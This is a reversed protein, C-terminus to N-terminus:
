AEPGLLAQKARELASGIRADIWGDPYEGVADGPNLTPDPKLEVGAVDVVGSTALAAVDGPHLRVATVRGVGTGQAGLARDLAAWATNEGKALEYGLIAEALEVASAALVDQVDDVAVEQRQQAAAAAAQLLQVAHAAASRGADLMDEHETRLREQLQRQEAAAAHIGAAYGAAHGQVFGRDTETSREPGGIAPFTVRTFHETSM